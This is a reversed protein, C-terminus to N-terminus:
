FLPVIGHISLGMATSIYTNPTTVIRDGPKLGMALGGLRIADTGSGVSIAFHVGIYRAFAEEFAAVEKGMIFEGSKGVRDFIRLLSERNEDYERELDFIKVM